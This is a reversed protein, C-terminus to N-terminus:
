LKKIIEISTLPLWGSWMGNLDTDHEHDYGIGTVQIMKGVVKSVDVKMYKYQPITGRNWNAALTSGGVPSMIADDLKILYYSNEEVKTQKFKPIFIEETDNNYEPISAVQVKKLEDKILKNMKQAIYQSCIQRM